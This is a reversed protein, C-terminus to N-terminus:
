CTHTHAVLVASVLLMASYEELGRTKLAGSEIKATNVESLVVQESSSKFPGGPHGFWAQNIAIAEKNAVIDWVEDMITSNNIDMSLTLPSSIIAWAGFHTRTETDSLGADEDGGPGHECGVELMDPYSWCGPRSLLTDAYKYTTALNAMVSAYSARVDGSTRYFNWPCWDLTPEFPVARESGWHCNEVVAVGGAATLLDDYKQLDLQVGCGDLKWGDFNFDLFMKVDGEFFKDSNTAVEACICNNGYWGATLGLSHAYDTMAKMDPFLDTNVIPNGDEDHFNLDGSDSCTQWNDDLGVDSYGLDALSTPVGDVSRSRDTMGKMISQM